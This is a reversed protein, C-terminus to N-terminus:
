PARRGLSVSGIIRTWGNRGEQMIGNLVPASDPELAHMLPITTSLSISELSLQLTAWFKFLM